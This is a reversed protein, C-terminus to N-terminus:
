GALAIRAADKWPLLFEGQRSMVSVAMETQALAFEAHSISGHDSALLDRLLSKFTEADCPIPFVLIPHTDSPFRYTHLEGDQLTYHAM